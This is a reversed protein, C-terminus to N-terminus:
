LELKKTTSFLLDILSDSSVLIIQIKEKEKQAIKEEEM